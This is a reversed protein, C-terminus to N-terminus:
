LAGDKVVTKFDLAVFSTLLSVKISNIGSGAPGASLRTQRETGSVKKSDTSRTNNQHLAEVSATFENITINRPTNATWRLDVCQHDAACDPVLRAETIFVEPQGPSSSGARVSGGNPAVQQQVMITSAVKFRARINARFEKLTATSNAKPHAAVQLIVSRTSAKLSDSHATNRSGDSYRVELLLDFGDITTLRMVKATWRIEIDANAAGQGLAALRSVQTIQLDLPQPSSQPTRAQAISPAAAFWMLVAMTLRAAPENRMQIRMKPM